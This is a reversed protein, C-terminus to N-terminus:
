SLYTRLALEVLRSPRVGGAAARARVQRILARPLRVTLTAAPTAPAATVRGEEQRVRAELSALAVDEADRATQTEPPRADRFPSGPRSTSDRPPREAAGRVRRPGAKGSSRKPRHGPRDDKM